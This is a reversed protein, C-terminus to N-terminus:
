NISGMLSIMPIYVALLVIAVVGGLLLITVPEITATAKSISVEVQSTFYSSTASLVEELNGTKEGVNIMETLMKPFINTNEISKAIRKGRKVEDICYEFKKAFVQNGLIRTLNELCDTINMGSRLLIIFASTFRSTIVARNVKGIIPLHLKLYDFHYKGIKFFKFYITCLLVIAGLILFIIFANTRIFHSINFIVQTIKPIEGDFEAFMTEFKPLIYFCLFIIIAFVMVLVITPYVLAAKAKKKVKQDNEYYDAMSTLITDLSGSVEGIAVMQIFFNPFVNKHKAFAVSLLKGSLVDHHVEMIVKLFAKSFKQSKLANLADAISISANIMVAFQRLFLTVESIKVKSSVSFFVNPEKEKVITAKVLTYSDRKLFAKLSIEDIAEKVLVKKNGIEDLVDCKYVPM